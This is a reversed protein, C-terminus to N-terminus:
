SAVSTLTPDMVRLRANQGAAVPAPKVAPEAKDDVITWRLKALAEPNLGLKNDLERMEKMLAMSGTACRRLTSIAWECQRVADESAGDLLEKMTLHDAFELAALNDELQARRGIHYLSGTDWAYAQPQAWAWAWWAAGNEQLPYPCEPAPEGRGSAPLNTTPITPANRRRANPNPLPGPM